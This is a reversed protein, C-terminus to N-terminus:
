QDHRYGIRSNQANASRRVEPANNVAMLLWTLPVVLIPHAYGRPRLLMAVKATLFTHITAVLSWRLIFGLHRSISASRRAAVSGLELAMRSCNAILLEFGSARYNHSGLEVFTSGFSVPWPRPVFQVSSIDEFLGDELLSVALLLPIQAEIGLPVELPMQERLYVISDEPLVRAGVLSRSRGFHWVSRKVSRTRHM